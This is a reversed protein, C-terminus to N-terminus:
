LRCYNRFFGTKGKEWVFAYAILNSRDMFYTLTLRPDKKLLSPLIQAGLAAYWTELDDVDQNLLLLIKLTKVMYPSPPWRPCTVHVMQVFKRKEM